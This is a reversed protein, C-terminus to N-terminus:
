ATPVTARARSCLDGLERIQEAITELEEGSKASFEVTKAADTITPFGYAEGAGKLQHALTGLSDLDQEDLVKEIASIRDPLGGVFIEVIELLDDDALESVLADPTNQQSPMTTEENSTHTQIMAILQARNIPKTAYDDCGADLCNQRDEAMAHATLAIIPARYGSDRLQRTTEYGDLVPMQMDMLIVDFPSGDRWAATAMDFAIQGNDALAVEAGAKKLIFGILRRNDPGDEALLVRCGHLPSESEEVRKAEEKEEMSKGAGHIFRVHDLPGTSISFSFTSGVGLTSSVSIKGGLLKVMRKCIALGLGTGGFQRTTSGDAQTFPMFLKEIKDEAIGIGTDIVDIRLNPEEGPENLLRTVIQISGTETFKIANGLANILIQRLRTPDTRITEPLTGEFRVELPLDKAAARVGMLEAVESVIRHPSCDIQEVQLKGEEIKSLDLIDNILDLLCEGNRKITRAADLDEPKDVSSLLIDVFGLIATMPTRIEHSMNALFASKAQNASDAVQTAQRLQEVGQERDEELRRLDDVMRNFSMSLKAIEDNSTIEIEQCLDGKAVTGLATALRRVPKTVGRTIAIAMIGGFILIVLSLLITTNTTSHSTQSASSFRGATLREEEEIFLRFQERIRDLTRKGTGKELLTAVNKLSEPHENMQRRAKIEPEAVTRSWEAALQELQDIKGILEYEVGRDSVITRLRAFYAPLKTQEGTAYKELFERRGAILFGRQGSERDTMCKEIAETIFAGEWDGRESFYVEVEHGLAMFRDM